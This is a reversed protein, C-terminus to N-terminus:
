QVVLLRTPALFFFSQYANSIIKCVNIGLEMILSYSPSSQNSELLSAIYACLGVIRCRLLSLCVSLLFLVLPQIASLITPLIWTSIIIVSEKDGPIVLSLDMGAM